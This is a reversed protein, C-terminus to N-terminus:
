AKPWAYTKTKQNLYKYLYKIRKNLMRWKTPHSLPYGRRQAFKRRRLLVQYENGKFGRLWFPMNYLLKTPHLSRKTVNEMPGLIDIYDNQGFLARKENWSNKPKYEPMPLKEDSAVHPLMGRQLLKETYGYRRLAPGREVKEVHYRFRVSTLQPAFIIINKMPYGFSTASVLKSVISSLLSTM